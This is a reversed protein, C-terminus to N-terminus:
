SVARNARGIPESPASPVRPGTALSPSVAATVAGHYLDLVRDVSALALARATPAITGAEVGPALRGLWQGILPLPLARDGLSAFLAAVATRAAPETWLYRVRDSLGFHRQLRRAAEDGHCYAAWSEPRAQFLGEMVNPLPARGDPALVGAIADLGYLAERLAFTLWPGVKLFGFGDRTLRRLAAPAQYDTSHAEFVLGPWADLLSALPRAAVPDYAHVEEQGFEVGPQVVLAIVREWADALGAARFAARHLELTRSATEPTTVAVSSAGTAGGPTPVETGIVYFPAPADAPRAAEAVVALAAARAALVEEAVNPPDDACAVSADLHLKVFGASAYAGVMREAEAMAEAATRGKWPTPGLHDGGLILSGAPLGVRAAAATVAARLEAPTQGTYGGRHNVQNCTAEILVETGHRAGHALAAEIVMEHASCISALGSAAGASRAEAPRLLPHGPTRM